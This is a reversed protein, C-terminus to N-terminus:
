DLQRILEAARWALAMTPGNTNGALVFPAISLDVVHLQEVGRVRTLPDVVAADDAGMRCTGVAHYGPTACRAYGRLIEDDAQYQPGPRTEGAIVEAVPGQEVMRRIWRVLDVLERRDGADAFYDLRTEPLVAPDRSVIHVTGTSAPRLPYVVMQLGPEKEVAPKAAQYDISYASALFQADPRDLDPRTKLWGGVEFTANAMVGDHRAFYRLTNGLLRLGQYQANESAVRGNLRWQMVIGCHERLNAGVGTSEAVLPIGLQALLARPGVGSRQLLGPSAMTGASVIIRRGHYPTAQPGACQVGVARRGDFLVRDVACGSVVHLNPRQARVPDLFAVAASQRRGRWITRPAYGVKPANDPANVDSQEPLGMANASAILRDLLPDRRAPMSIRLPGADGRTEGRGLQHSEMAAYAAGIHSWGWDPSTTSALLEFDAPQGRVYMLGNVSSSGGMVKGRVWPPGAHAPEDDHRLYPWTLKPDGMVQGIGKPMHIMPHKDPPGAELLLVQKRGDESLRHALVCGAAGAGVIIYDYENM